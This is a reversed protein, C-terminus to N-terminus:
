ADHRPMPVKIFNVGERRLLEEEDATSTGKINRKESVNYHIKLAEKAFDAGVNEFHTDLFKYFARIAEGNLYGSGPHDEGSSESADKRKSNRIAVPSLAKDVERSGCIPCTLLNRHKQDEFATSSEFWGEFTHDNICRLDFVIM